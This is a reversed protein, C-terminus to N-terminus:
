EDTEWGDSDDDESGEDGLGEMASRGYVREALIRLTMPMMPDGYHEKIDSKEVACM